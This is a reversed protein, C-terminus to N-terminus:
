EDEMEKRIYSEYRQMVQMKAEETAMDGLKRQLEVPDVDADDPVEATFSVHGEAPEYQDLQKKESASAQVETVFEKAEAEDM